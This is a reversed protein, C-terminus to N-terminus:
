AKHFAIRAAELDALRAAKLIKSRGKLADAYRAECCVLWSRCSERRDRAELKIRESPNM